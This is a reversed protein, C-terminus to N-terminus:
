IRLEYAMLSLHTGVIAKNSEDRIFVDLRIVM